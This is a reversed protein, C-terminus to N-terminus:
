LFQEIPLIIPGNNLHTGFSFCNGGGGLVVIEGTEEVLESVHKHLLVPNEPDQIPLRLERVNLSLLDVVAVGPSLESFINVGGLLLLKEKWIHSTHSYRPLLGVLQLERWSLFELDLFFVSNLPRDNRGLGCSVLVGFNWAVASHSHRPEPFHRCNEVEKWILMKMNLVLCDGLVESELNCGGFVVVHDIGKFNVSTTTHRWRNLPKCGNTPFSSCTFKKTNCIVNQDDFIRSSHLTEIRYKEVEADSEDSNIELDIRLSENQTKVPSSRGGMILLSNCNLTIVSSHIIDLLHGNFYINYCVHNGTKADYLVLDGLRLHKGERTGFGGVIAILQNEMLVSKHGFRQLHSCKPLMKWELRGSYDTLQINSSLKQAIDLFPLLAGQCACVLVYHSCKLHWEEFEDFMEIRKVRSKEEDSLSEYFDNMTFVCCSDWGLNRYRNQQSLISKYVILSKLPSGLSAFHRQMIIGFGDDPYVQEYTVFASNPFKAASWRILDDSSKVDMYVIACESLFLTPASYRIGMEMFVHDVNRINQLDVGVLIYDETSLVIKKIEVPKKASLLDRLSSNNRICDLKKAMVEPFDVQCKEASYVSLFKSLIHQVCKVRIYYGRNILATRCAKRKVFCKLFEDNIYGKSVMSCKSVVSSDNTGQVAIM